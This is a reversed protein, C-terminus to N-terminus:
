RGSGRLMEDRVADPLRPVLDLLDGFVGTRELGAAACLEPLRTGFSLHTVLWTSRLRSPSLRPHGTPVILTAALNSARNKSRSRGGILVDGGAAEALERIEDAWDSLVVVSRASPEGVEVTVIGRRRRVDGPVVRSVWRGDLGAGLGLALFARAARVRAPTPQRLADVRLQAVEDERYPPVLQRRPIVTPRPEWPATKTLLPGVRRLVARCTARSRDAALAVDCFREVTDPDLVLERDLPLGEATAWLTLRLLQRRTRVTSACQELGLDVVMQDVFWSVPTADASRLSRGPAELPGGTPTASKPFRAQPV